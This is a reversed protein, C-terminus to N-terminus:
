GRLFAKEAPWFGDDFDVDIANLRHFGLDAHFFQARRIDVHRIVGDGWGHREFAEVIHLFEKVGVAAVLM